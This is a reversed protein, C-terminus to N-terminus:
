ADASLEIIRKREAHSVIVPIAAGTTMPHHPMFSFKRVGPEIVHVHGVVKPLPQGIEVEPLGDGEIVLEISGQGLRDFSVRALLVDVAGDFLLSGLCDLPLEIIADRHPKEDM